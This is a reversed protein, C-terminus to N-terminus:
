DQERNTGKEPKIKIIKIECSGNSRIVNDAWNALEMLTGAGEIRRGDEMTITGRFRDYESM